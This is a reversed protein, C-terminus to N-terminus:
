IIETEYIAGAFSQLVAIPQGIWNRLNPPTHLIRQSQKHAVITFSRHDNGFYHIQQDAYPVQAQQANNKFSFTM